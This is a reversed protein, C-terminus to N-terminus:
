DKIYSDWGPTVPEAVDKAIVYWIKERGDPKSFYELEKESHAVAFASFPGNNVLCAIITDDGGESFDIHPDGQGRFIEKGHERAFDEKSMDVPNIYLGM